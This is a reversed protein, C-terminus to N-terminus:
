RVAIHLETVTGNDHGRSADGLYREFPAVRLDPAIGDASLRQMLLYWAVELQARSGQLRAALARHAPLTAVDLGEVETAGIPLGFRCATTRRKIDTKVYVGIPEQDALVGRAALKARLEDVVSEIADGLGEIPGEHAIYAYRMAEVERMGDYSLTYRPAGAPEVLGALRDLGHRFDLAISGQVTDAFARMTFAVRGRLSWTVRTKGQLDVFRWSGRGRLPFPWRLRVRQELSGAERIRLNEIRGIEVGARSWACTSASGDNGASFGVDADSESELWPSWDRWRRLDVVRAHVLALPADIVRTQTVRLRGSYRGMYVLVAVICFGVVYVLATM